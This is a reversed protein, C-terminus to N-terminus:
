IVHNIYQYGEPLPSEWPNSWVHDLMTPIEAAGSELKHTQIKHWLWAYAYSNGCASTIKINWVIYIMLIIIRRSKEDRGFTVDFSGPKFVVSSSWRLGCVTLILQDPHRLIANIEKDQSIVANLIWFFFAVHISWCYSFNNKTPLCDLEKSKWLFLKGSLKYLDLFTTEKRYRTSKLAQLKSRELHRPNLVQTQNSIFSDVVVPNSSYDENQLVQFHWQGDIEGAELFLIMRLFFIVGFHDFLSHM